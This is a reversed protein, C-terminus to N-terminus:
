KCKQWQCSICNSFYEACTVAAIIFLVILILCVAVSVGSFIRSAQNQPHRIRVSGNVIVAAAFLPSFLYFAGVALSVLSGAMLLVSILTLGGGGDQAAAPFGPHEYNRVPVGLLHEPTEGFIIPKQTGSCIIFRYEERSLERRWKGDRMPQFDAESLVEAGNESAAILFGSGDTEELKCPIGCFYIVYQAPEAPEPPAPTQMALPSSRFSPKEFKVPVYPPQKIIYAYENQSLVHVWRGDADQTFGLEMLHATSNEAATVLVSKGDSGEMECPIGYYDIM